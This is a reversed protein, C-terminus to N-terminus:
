HLIWSRRFLGSSLSFIGWKKFGSAKNALNLWLLSIPWYRNQPVIMNYFPLTM